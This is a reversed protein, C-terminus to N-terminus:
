RCSAVKRPPIAEGGSGTDAGGGEGGGEDGGGAGSSGGSAGSPGPWVRAM